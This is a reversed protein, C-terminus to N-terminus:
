NKLKDALFETFRKWSKKDAAEQYRTQGFVTFVHQVGGDIILESTNESQPNRLSL